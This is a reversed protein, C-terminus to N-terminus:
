SEIRCASTGALGALCQGCRDSGAFTQGRRRLEGGGVAEDRAATVLELGGGALLKAELGGEVLALRGNRSGLACKGTCPGVSLHDLAM